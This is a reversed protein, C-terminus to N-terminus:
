KGGKKDWVWSFSRAFYSKFTLVKKNKDPLGPLRKCKPFALM